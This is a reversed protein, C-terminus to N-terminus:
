LLTQAVLNSARCTDLEVAQLLVTRGSLAPPVFASLSAVGAADAAAAGAIVPNRIGISLGPCGPVPTSGPQFGRVFSM